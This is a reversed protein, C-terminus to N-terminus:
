NQIEERKHKLKLKQNKISLSEIFMLLDMLIKSKLNNIITVTQNYLKNNKLKPM